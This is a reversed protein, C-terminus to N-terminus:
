VGGGVLEYRCQRSFSGGQATDELNDFTVCIGARMRIEDAIKNLTASNLEIEFGIWAPAPRKKANGRGFQTTCKRIAVCTADTQCTENTMDRSM